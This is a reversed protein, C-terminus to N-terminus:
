YTWGLIASVVNRRYQFVDLNSRAFTTQYNITFTLNYPLPTVVAFVNTYETDRRRTTNPAQTPFFANTHLYERLHVDFDDTLRIGRWPLTYQGGALVRNGYYSFDRGRGHPGDLDDVDWQYGLKLLHRDDSFRFVHSLGVMYNDGDRKEPGPIFQEQGYGKNQYRFQFADLNSSNPLVVVSPVVTHRQIFKDGGLTLYDYSYQVAAQYPVGRVAGRYSTGLGGLYDLINFRTLANNYTTFFSATATADWGGQRFFTYDFRVAGLEGPSTQKRQRLLRVLPDGGDARDPSVPVNDDYFFGLRLEVRLRREAERAAILAGRLREAPGTLPSAPQTKVAEDIEATAQAPLGLIGLALGSYFRTLQQINPDSSIGARFARLAGQYDKNRYRMFGVYYGLNDLRPNASFVEELVPQARDYRELGFYLVGLQFLVSQDHPALKRAQELAEAAQDYRKLGIHALGTYYFADVNNPDLRLAERLNVLSDEYRMQQYAVIGRAVFVSAEGQQTYGRTAMLLVLLGACCSTVGLAPHKQGVRVSVWFRRLRM